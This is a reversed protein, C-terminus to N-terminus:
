SYYKVSKKDKIRQRIAKFFVTVEKGTAYRMPGGKKYAEPLYNGRSGTMRLNGSSEGGSNRKLLLLPKRGYNHGNPNQTCVVVAHKVFFGKLEIGSSEAPPLSTGIIAEVILRIDRRYSGCITTKAMATAIKRAKQSYRTDPKKTKGSAKERCAKTIKRSESEIKRLEPLTLKKM